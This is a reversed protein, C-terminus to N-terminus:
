KNILATDQKDLIHRIKKALDQASFPKHLFYMDKSIIGHHNIVDKTHGSMYMVKLDPKQATLKEYLNKGSMDTLIVDALLLDIKGSHEQFLEHCEYANNASLVVYGLKELIDLVMQRVMEDDEVFLITENGRFVTQKEQEIHLPPASESAQPFFVKFRTGKWRRSEVHIFGGHQKVIHNVSALGLGSGKGYKKTTFLPEFILPLLHEEIGIGTDIVELVVYEGPMAEPNGVQVEKLNIKNTCVTIIGGDIMADQANMCLNMLVQEIQGIDAKIAGISTNLNFRIEIHERISKVLIKNFSNIIDNINVVIMELDKKRSFSLLQNTLNKASIAAKYIQVVYGYFQDEKNMENMLMDSYGLIPTIMNNLDHSVGGSLKGISEIKLAQILMDDSKKRATIDQIVAIVYDVSDDTKMVCHVSVETLVISGSKHIFRKEFTSNNKEIMSQVFNESVDDDPSISDWTSRFMEDRSYGFISLIKDNVELWVGEISLISVGIIPLNFYGQFRMESDKLANEAEQRKETVDTILDLAAPEDNWNILMARIEAWRYGRYKTLLRFQYDNEPDEGAIRKLYRTIVLEKDDPHIFDLFNSSLLEEESYGSLESAKPNAYVVRGNQVVAIAQNAKEVLTRYHEESLKIAKLSKQM